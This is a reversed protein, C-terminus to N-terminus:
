KPKPPIIRIGGGGQIPHPHSYMTQHQHHEIITPVQSAAAVAFILTLLISLTRM